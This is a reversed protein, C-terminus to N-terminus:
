EFEVGAIKAGVRAFASARKQLFATLEEDGNAILASCFAAADVVTGTKAKAKSTARSYAGGQVVPKAVEVPAEAAAQQAQAAIDDPTLVEVAEAAEAAAQAAIDEDAPVFPAPDGHEAAKDAAEAAERRLREETELRVREREKAREEAERALREETEKRVREREAAEAKRKEEVQYGDIGNLLAEAATSAPELVPVWKGQVAKAGDDFPKKEAKRKTEGLAGIERIADRIAAAANANELTDIKLFPKGKVMIIKGLAAVKEIQADLKTKIQLWFADVEEGNEDVPNNGGESAPTDPVIDHKEEDSTPRSIKGDPWAGREAAATWDLRRVAQCKLFTGQEFEHAEAETMVKPRGAGWQITYLEQGEGKHVLCPWDHKTKAAIVRWYGSIAAAENGPRHEDIPEGGAEIRAIESKWYNWQPDAM